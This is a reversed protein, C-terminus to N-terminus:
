RSILFGLAYLGIAVGALLWALRRNRRQQLGLPAGNNAQLSTPQVAPQVASM